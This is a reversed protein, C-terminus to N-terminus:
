CLLDDAADSTYLLCFHGDDAALAHNDIVVERRKFFDADEVHAHFTRRMVVREAFKLVGIVVAIHIRRIDLLLLRELGLALMEKVADSMARRRHAAALAARFQDANQLRGGFRQAVAACGDMKRPRLGNVDVFGKVVVTHQRDFGPFNQVSTEAAFFIRHAAIALRLIFKDQVSVPMSGGDMLEDLSCIWRTAGSTFSPFFTRM